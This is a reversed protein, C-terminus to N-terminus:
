SEVYDFRLGSAAEGGVIHKRRGIWRHASGDHWRVLQYTRVVTAGSRPVEEEHLVVGPGTTSRATSLLAGLPLLSATVDRSLPVLRLRISEHDALQEPAMPYWHKPVRADARYRPPAGPALPEALPPPREAARDRPTGDDDSVVAEVAWALNAMEDRLLLVREAPESELGGVLAPPLYFWPVTPREEGPEPPAARDTLGFLNFGDVDTIAPPLEHRDGFVDFVAFGSVQTLSAVPLRVPLAFWDNGYVTAFSVLMMRGLDIPGADLSGPDFRADEMEWFRVAPMGGFRVPAPVSTVHLPRASGRADPPDKVTTADLAFWDLRGGTYGDAVLRVSPLSSAELEFGYEMREENWTEPHAAPATAAAPARANWWAIWDPVLAVAKAVDAPALGLATVAAADGAALRGLLTALAAGDPVRRRVTEAVSGAAPPLPEAPFPCVAAFTDQLRELGAGALARRWRLGGDRRLLPDPGRGPEQEVLRELPERGRDFPRMDGAGRPRWGDVIHSAGAVEVHSPSAADEGDFEGFQWQRALLWLPDHIRAALGEMIGPSRGVTEFRVTV